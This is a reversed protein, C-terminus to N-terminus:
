KDPSCTKFFEQGSQTPGLFPFIEEKKCDGHFENLKKYYVKDLKETKESVDYNDEPITLPTRLLKRRDEPNPNFIKRKKQVM